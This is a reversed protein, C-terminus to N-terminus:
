PGPGQLPPLTIGSSLMATQKITTWVTQWARQRFRVCPILGYFRYALAFVCLAAFILVASNMGNMQEM